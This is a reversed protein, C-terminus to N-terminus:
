GPKVVEQAVHTGRARHYADDLRQTLQDDHDSFLHGYTGLTLALDKHGMRRQVSLMKCGQDIMLATATHRM